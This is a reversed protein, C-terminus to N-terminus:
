KISLILGKKHLFYAIVVGGLIGFSDILAFTFLNPGPPKLITFTTTNASFTINTKTIFRLEFRYRGPPPTALTVSFEGKQDTSTETMSVENDTTDDTLIVQLPRDNIPNALDDVLQGKVTININKEYIVGMSPDPTIKGKFSENWIAIRLDINQFAANVFIHVTKNSVAKQYGPIQSFTTMLMYPGTQDVSPAHIVARFDSNEDTTTSISEPYGDWAIMISQSGPIPEGFQDRLSGTVEITEGKYVTTRNVEFEIITPGYPTIEVPYEASSAEYYESVDYKAYIKRTTEEPVDPVPLIASFQGRTDTSSETLPPEGEWNLTIIASSIPKKQDDVLTGNVQIDGGSYAKEYVLPQVTFDQIETLSRITAIKTESSPDLGSDPADAWILFNGVPISGNLQLFVVFNGLEDTIAPEIVYITRRDESSLYVEINVGPIPSIGYVSDNQMQGQVLISANRFLQVDPDSPELLVIKYKPPTIPVVRLMAMTSSETYYPVRGAYDARITFDKPE